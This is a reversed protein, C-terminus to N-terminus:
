FFFIKFLVEYCVICVYLFPFIVPIYYTGQGNEGEGAGRGSPYGLGDTNIIGSINLTNNAFLTVNSGYMNGSYVKDSTTKCNFYFFTIGNVYAIPSTITIYSKSRIYRMDISGSSQLAFYRSNIKFCIFLIDVIPFLCTIVLLYQATINGQVEVSMTM